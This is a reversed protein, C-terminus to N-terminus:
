SEESEIIIRETTMYENNRVDPKHHLILTAKKGNGKVDVGAEQLRELLKDIALAYEGRTKTRGTNCDINNEKCKMILSKFFKKQKASPLSKEYEYESQSRVKEFGLYRNHNLKSM